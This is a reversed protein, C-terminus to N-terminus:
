DPPRVRLLSVSFGHRFFLFQVHEEFFKKLLKEKEGSFNERM